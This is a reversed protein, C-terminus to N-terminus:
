ADERRPLGKKAMYEVGLFFYRRHPGIQWNAGNTMEVFQELSSNNVWPLCKYPEYFNDMSKMVAAWNSVDLDAHKNGVSRAGSKLRALVAKPTRRGQHEVYPMALSIMDKMEAAGYQVKGNALGRPWPYKSKDYTLHPQLRFAIVMREDYRFWRCLQRINSLDPYPDNEETWPDLRHRVFDLQLGEVCDFGKAEEVIQRPKKNLFFRDGMTIVVWAEEKGFDKQIKQLLHHYHPRMINQRNKDDVKRIAYDSNKILDWTNDQSGDDYAYIHDVLGRVHQYVQPLLDAEDKVCMIGIIKV